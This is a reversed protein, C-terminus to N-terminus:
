ATQFPQAVLSTLMEGTAIDNASVSSEKSIGSGTANVFGSCFFSLAIIANICVMMKKLTIM